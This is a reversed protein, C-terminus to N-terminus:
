VLSRYLTVTREAIADWSREGEGALIAANALKQREAGSAILRQLTEALAGADGPPVLAAIGERGYQRFGGVDGLVMTKGFAMGAHVVGSQEIERYPLALIDARGFLRPIEDDTIFRPLLRVRGSAKRALEELPEVPMRPMGAIWLEADTEGLEAFAELLVNIGKYPRLLGFFLIVPVDPAVDAFEAPLPKPNEIKTLYDLPGHPIVHVQEESLGFEQRLRKAGHGTHSIVADFAHLFRRQARMRRRSEAPPLPYHLTLVRPRGAPRVLFRDVAPLTVWQWHVVDAARGRPAYRLMEPGHELAKVVLRLKSEAPLKNSLGYFGERVDYGPSPAVPGYRFESTVLEVRMGARTLAAALSRDYPPTFASPDVLSVRM